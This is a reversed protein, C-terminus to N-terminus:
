MRTKIIDNEVTIPPTVGEKRFANYIADAAIQVDSPLVMVSDHITGVFADQATVSLLEAAVGDIMLERELKQLERACNTYDDAKLSEVREAVTPFTRKMWHDIFTVEPAPRSRPNRFQWWMANQKADDRSWNGFESVSEAAITEYLQGSEVLDLFMRTDSTSRYRHALLGILLFQCNAVDINVLPQGDFRLFRRYTSRINSLPTHVRGGFTDRVMWVQGTAFTIISDLLQLQQTYSLPSEGSQAERRAEAMAARHDIRLRSLRNFLSCEVPKPEKIMGDFSPNRLKEIMTKTQPQYCAFGSAMAEDTFKLHAAHRGVCARKTEVIIGADASQCFTDSLFNTNVLRSLWVNSVPAAAYTKQHNLKHKQKRTRAKRLRKLHDNQLCIRAQHSYAALRDQNPKNSDAFTDSDLLMQPVLLIPGDITEPLTVSLIPALPRMQTLTAAPM